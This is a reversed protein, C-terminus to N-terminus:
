ILIRVILANQTACDFESFAEGFVQDELLDLDITRGTINLKQGVIGEISQRDRIVRSLVALM